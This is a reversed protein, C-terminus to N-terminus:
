IKQLSDFVHARFFIDNEMKKMTRFIYMWHLKKAFFLFMLTTLLTFLLSFIVCIM